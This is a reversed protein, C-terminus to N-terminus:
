PGFRYGFTDIDKWFAAEIIRRGETSYYHWYARRRKTQNLKQLQRSPLGIKSTVTEFDRQLTEFHGVFDLLLDGESDTIWDIQPMFMRPWDRFAADCDQYAAIVWENFDSESTLGNQGTAIRFSFQSVVRDWPNRVFCFTFADDFLQAGVAERLEEATYHNYWSGKSDFRIGLSKAVSAGGTKNIWVFFFTGRAQSYCRLVEDASPQLRSPFSM